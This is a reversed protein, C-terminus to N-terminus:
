FQFFLFPNSTYGTMAMASLILLLVPHLAEWLSDLVMMVGGNEARATMATRLKTGLPTVALIGFILIPLNNVLIMLTAVSAFGGKSLGIMGKAMLPIDSLEQCRLLVFSLLVLVLTLCRRLGWPLKELGRWLAFQELILLLCFYMAWLVWNASPGCWLGILLWVGILSLCEKWAKGEVNGLPDHLYDTFFSIVSMQWKSWFDAITYATFPHDFQEPYRLGCLRGMGIAMDAYSALTFYVSLGYVLVGIWIGLATQTTLMGLEQGLLQDALTTLSQALITNKALGITFRSIGSSIDARRTRRRLLDKRIETYRVVPGGLSLHFLGAYTLLVWYKTQARVEGRYVDVLYSILQLMYYAAGLPVITEPIAQPVQFLKQTLGMFFGRYGFFLVLALEIVLAPILFKKKRKEDGAVQILLGFFWAILVTVLLFVLAGLGSWCYFVLSFVLLAINKGKPKKFIVQSLLSLTLFFFVFLMSSYVM